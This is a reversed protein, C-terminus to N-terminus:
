IVDGNLEYKVSNPSRKDIVYIDSSHIPYADDHKELKTFTRNHTKNNHHFNVSFREPFTNLNLQQGFNLNLNSLVNM